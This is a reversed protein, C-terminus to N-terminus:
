DTNLNDFSKPCTRVQSFLEKCFLVSQAAELRPQWPYDNPMTGGIGSPVQLIASTVDASETLILGSHLSLVGQNTIM